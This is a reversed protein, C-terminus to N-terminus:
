AAKEKTPLADLVDPSVGLALYDARTPMRRTSGTPKPQEPYPNTMLGVEAKIAAIQEPTVRETEDFVKDSAEAMLGLRFARAARQRMMPETFSRIEGAGRPFFRTGPENVYASCAAQLIDIPVDRLDDILKAFSARAEDASENRAVTGLRLALLANERDEVTAPDM